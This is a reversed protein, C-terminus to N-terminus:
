THSILFTTTGFITTFCSRGRKHYAKTNKYKHKVGRSATKEVKVKCTM